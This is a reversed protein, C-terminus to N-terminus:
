KLNRSSVPLLFSPMSPIDNLDLYIELSDIKYLLKNCLDTTISIHKNTLTWILDLIKSINFKIKLEADLLNFLKRIDNYVLVLNVSEGQIQAKDYDMIIPMIGGIIELEYFDGYKIIKRNTKQIMINGLHADTHIFGITLASYLITIVIHKIVNKLTDFNQKTWKYKDITGNNIYPMVLINIQEGDKKCLSTRKSNLFAKEEETKGKFTFFDDLCSFMCIYGLFTPIKLTDLLKGIEYENELKPPGIKVVIQKHKELLANYLTYDPSDHEIQKVLHLWNQTDPNTDTNTNTKKHNDILTQCDLKYKFSNNDNHKSNRDPQLLSAM